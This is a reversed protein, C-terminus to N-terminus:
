RTTAVIAALADSWIRYGAANLHVGDSTYRGDLEGDGAAFREFLPVYTCALEHCLDALGRNVARITAPLPGQGEGALMRRIPFVSNVAIAVSPSRARIHALLQRYDALVRAPSAGRLLDNTGLMIVIQGPRGAIIPEIRALAGAITDGNIGRNLVDARGLLEHWEGWDVHSDGLLVVSGAPVPVAAFLQARTIRYQSAPPPERLYRRYVLWGAGALNVALSGALLAVLWARALRTM